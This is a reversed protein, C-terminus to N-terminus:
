LAPEPLCKLCGVWSAGLGEWIQVQVTAVHLFIQDSGAWWLKSDMGTEM